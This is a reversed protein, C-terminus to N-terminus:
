EVQGVQIRRGGGMGVIRKLGVWMMLGMHIVGVFGCQGVRIMLGWQGVWIVVRIVGVFGRQGVLMVLCEHIM